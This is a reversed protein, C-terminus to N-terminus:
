MDARKTIVHLYSTGCEVSKKEGWQHLCLLCVTFSPLMLQVGCISRLGSSVTQFIGYSIVEKDVKEERKKDNGM